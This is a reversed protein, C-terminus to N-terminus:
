CSNLQLFYVEAQSIQVLDNIKLAFTLKWHHTFYSTFYFLIRQINWIRSMIFAKKCVKKANVIEVNKKTM